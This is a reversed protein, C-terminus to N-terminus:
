GSEIVIDVSKGLGVEETSRIASRSKIRALTSADPVGSYGGKCTSV